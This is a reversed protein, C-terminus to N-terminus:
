DLLTLCPPWLLIPIDAPMKLTSKGSIPGLIGFHAPNRGCLLACRTPSCTPFVYHHELRVGGSALRDLNPTSIAPHRYGIDRWGQDDSVIFVINPLATKGSAPPAGWLVAPLLVTFIYYVFLRKTM